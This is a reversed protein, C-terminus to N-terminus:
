PNPANCNTGSTMYYLIHNPSYTNRVPAYSTRQMTITPSTSWAYAAFSFGPKYDYAVDAVIVAGTSPNVTSSAGNITVTKSQTYSTPMSTSAIAPADLSSLPTGCSNRLAGSNKAITWNVYAQWSTPAAAPTGTINVESITMKVNAAGIPAMIPIASNFINQIIAEDIGAQGTENGIFAGNCYGKGDCRYLQQATLDALTHALLNLKESIRYGQSFEVLGLYLVLVVPLILAFEVAVVGKKDRALNKMAVRLDFEALPPTEGTEINSM